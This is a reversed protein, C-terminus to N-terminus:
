KKPEVILTAGQVAVVTVPSGPLVTEASANDALRAKMITGSWTVEGDNRTVPSGAYATQGVINDYGPAPRRYKQIPKWLLIAWVAAAGFFIVWQTVMADEAVAHFWLSTGVTIAGLGLFFFGIGTIHLEALAMIVGAILWIYLPSFTM